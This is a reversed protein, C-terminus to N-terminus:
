SLSEIAEDTFAVLKLRLCELMCQSFSLGKCILKGDDENLRADITLSRLTQSSKLIDSLVITNGTLYGSRLGFVGAPPYYSQLINQEIKYHVKREKRDEGLEYTKTYSTSNINIEGIPRASVVDLLTKLDSALEASKGYIKCTALDEGGLNM